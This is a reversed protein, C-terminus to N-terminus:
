ARGEPERPQERSANKAQRALCEALNKAQSPTFKLHGTMDRPLNIVVNTRGDTGVELVGGGADDGQPRFPGDMMAAVTPTRGADYSPPLPLMADVNTPKRDPKVDCEIVFEDPTVNCYTWIPRRQGISQHLMTVFVDVAMAELQAHTKGTVQSVAAFVDNTIEGRSRMPTKNPNLDPWGKGMTHPERDDDEPHRQDQGDPAAM